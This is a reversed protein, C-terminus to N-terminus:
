TFPALPFPMNPLAAALEAQFMVARSVRDRSWQGMRASKMSNVSRAPQTLAQFTVAAQCRPLDQRYSQYRTVRLLPSIANIHRKQLQGRLVSSPLDREHRHGLKGWHFTHAKRKTSFSPRPPEWYSYSVWCHSIVNGLSAERCLGSDTPHSFGREALIEECFM